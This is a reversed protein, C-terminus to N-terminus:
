ILDISRKVFRNLAEGKLMNNSLLALDILQSVLKNGSAFDKLAEEKKNKLETIKKEVDELEEKETQPIEEDKKGEKAKELESKRTELSQMKSRLNKLTEGAEKECDDVIRRVLKHNGNVVLNYSDPMDGYFMMPGGGTQSMEKMRRMFEQQTIMVPKDQDSLAEFSVVFNAKEINPVQSRFIITLNDKEEDSLNLENQEEKPILKEPVDSDVRVFRSKDFKQELHNIFHTDLQGDMLLVDYGKNKAAEIFSFQDEKDTAYLYVLQKDKDTQNDKIINKYEEFTFYKGDTNKLLAFKQARDYFKDDTLMGYEIFIKLDDWKEEFSNRENRFIEELRDAVKKTIHSSIKKVNSDSQLYSRSVNLPIDPSDIVGHLLTLFEPVIGEVSDTVYVQNCYLQIKNKQIEINNKIKPFYLIGTLNFPYDVNLHINFLPDEAMPYLDRYFKKYDEDKLNAPPQTWLPNTDNIINDEETEVEKGDKWETKKGFAVPVPLFRCYKKLLRNIEDKNVFHKNEDDIHLIIDTGREKKDIEEITYEPSGDCEWKVAKAGEQYSRTHIEVKESVMFSSYFGMGFHGIIANADKKYKELFENASSFAVQNIYKDIEEATMGIGKDSITITKKKEDFSVRITTDGLEGKFDGLRSLTILKQTADVANSVLERLFIEHDSYLYKKIIPFINDTSVGIKGKQM